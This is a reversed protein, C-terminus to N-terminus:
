LLATAVYKNFDEKIEQINELFDRKYSLINNIIRVKLNGADEILLITTDKTFKSTRPTLETRMFNFEKIYSEEKPIYLFDDTDELRELDRDSRRWVGHRSEGNKRKTRIKKTNIGEIEAEGNETVIAHKLRLYNSSNAHLMKLKKYKVKALVETYKIPLRAEFEIHYREPRANIMKTKKLEETLDTIEQELKSKRGKKEKGIQTLEIKYAEKAEEKNNSDSKEDKLDKYKENIEKTKKEFENDLNDQEKIKSELSQEVIEKHSKNKNKEDEKDKEYPDYLKFNISATYSDHYKWVPSFGEVVGTKTQTPKELNGKEVSGFFKYIENFVAIKKKKPTRNEAKYQKLIYNKVLETLTVAVLPITGAAVAAYVPNQLYKTLESWEM